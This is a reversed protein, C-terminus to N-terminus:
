RSRLLLALDCVNTGTPGTRLLDGLTDFLAHSDHERLAREPDLGAARARALTSPTIIAGAADTPGDEGDTALTLLAAQDDDLEALPWAAALALEQNRGGLQSPGGLQGHALDVTTEGGTVLCAPARVPLDDPMDVLLEGLRRGAARAQGDLAPLLVVADLGRERAVRCAAERADGNRAVLVQHVQQALGTHPDVPASAPAPADEIARRLAAPLEALAPALTSLLEAFAQPQDGADPYVTPGSGVLAPDDGVVDSLILGVVTAPAFLRALGGAKLRDLRRRLRNIAHISVDRALLHEVLAALQERPILPDCLLASAGGSIPCLVLDRPGVRPALARLQASARASAQGPIPHDGILQEVPGLEPPALAPDAAGAHKTIVVGGAVHPAFREVLAGAMAAGAKGAGVIWIRGHEAPGPAQPDAALDFVYEGVVAAAAGKPKPLLHTHAHVCALPDVAELAAGAIEALERGRPHRRLGPSRALLTERWPQRDPARSDM